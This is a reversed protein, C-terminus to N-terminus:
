MWVVRGNRGLEIQVVGPRGPCINYDRDSLASLVIKTRPLHFRIPRFEIFLLDQFLVLRHWYCNSNRGGQPLVGAAVSLDFDLRLGYTFGQLFGRGRVAIKAFMKEGVLVRKAVEDVHVQIVLVDAKSRPQLSRDLLAVSKSDHRRNCTADGDLVLDPRLQWGQAIFLDASVAAM